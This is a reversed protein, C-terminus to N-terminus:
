GLVEMFSEENHIQIGPYGITDDGGWLYVRWFRKRGQTIYIRTYSLPSTNYLAYLGTSEDEPRGRCPKREDTTDLSRLISVPPTWGRGRLVCYGRACSGRGGATEEVRAPGGAAYVEKKISDKADEWV